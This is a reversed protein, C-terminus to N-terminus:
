RRCAAGDIKAAVVKKALSKSIGEALGLGTLAADYDRISGDPFTLSVQTMDNEM